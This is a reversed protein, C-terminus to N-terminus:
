DSDDDSYLKDRCMPCEPKHLKWACEICLTHNCRTKTLCDERCVCCERIKTELQDEVALFQFLQTIRQDYEYETSNVSTPYWFTDDCKRYRINRISELSHRVFEDAHRHTSGREGDVPFYYLRSSPELYPCYIDVMLTGVITRNSCRKLKLYFGRYGATLGGLTNLVKNARFDLCYTEREGIKFDTYAEM